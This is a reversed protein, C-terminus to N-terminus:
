EGGVQTPFFGQLCHFGSPLLSDTVKPLASRETKWHASEIRQPGLVRQDTGNLIAIKLTEWITEVQGMPPTQINQIGPPGGITRGVEPQVGCWVAVGVARICSDNPSARQSRSLLVQASLFEPTHWKAIAWFKHVLHGVPITMNLQFGDIQLILLKSGYGNTSNQSRTSRCGNPLHVPRSDRHGLGHLSAIM